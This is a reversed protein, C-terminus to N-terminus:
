RRGLGVTGGRALIGMTQEATVFWSWGKGRGEEEGEGGDGRGRGRLHGGDPKVTDGRSASASNAIPYKLRGVFTHPMVFVHLHLHPVSSFPPIHFGSKLVPDPQDSLSIALQNGRASM